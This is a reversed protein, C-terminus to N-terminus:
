FEYTQMEEALQSNNFIAKAEDLHRAANEYHTLRHTLILRKVGNEVSLRAAQAASMHSSEERRDAELFSSDCLFLDADKIMPAINENMVTDGSFAFAKGECEVRVGFCPYPHEMKFFKLSMAGVNAEMGHSVPRVDFFRVSRLYQYELEPKDPAFVTVGEKEGMGFHRRYGHTYRLIMMDAMHDGHLHSLAVADIDDISLFKQLRSVTGSGCDLMINTGGGSLLYGSTASGAPPYPAYLGLVTLKM